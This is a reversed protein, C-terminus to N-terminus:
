DSFKNNIETEFKIRNLRGLRRAGNLRQQMIKGVTRFNIKFPYKQVYEMITDGENLWWKWLEDWQKMPEVSM